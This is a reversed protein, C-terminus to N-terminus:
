AIHSDSASVVDLQAIASCAGEFSFLAELRANNLAALTAYVTGDGFGRGDAVFRRQLGVATWNLLDSALPTSGIAVRFQAMDSEPDVVHPWELM